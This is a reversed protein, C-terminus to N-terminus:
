KKIFSGQSNEPTWMSLDITGKKDPEISGLMGKLHAIKKTLYDKTGLNIEFRNGVNIKIAAPNRVDIATIPIDRDELVTLLEDVLKQEKKSVITVKKGVNCVVKSCEIRILENAGASSKELVYGKKSAIYCKGNNIYYSYPAADEVTLKVTHPIKRNIKVSDVYPLTERIKDEVRSTSLRFMNQGTIGSASSIQEASYIDSGTVKVTEVKFFVTFCLVVLTVVLFFCFVVFNRKRRKRKIERQRSRRRAEFEDNKPM